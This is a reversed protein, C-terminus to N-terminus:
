KERVKKGSMHDITLELILARHANKAMDAEIDYGAPFLKAGLTRLLANKRQEDKVESIRGFCVVSTFCNWWEGPNRVPESLVTFCVKDNARVADLKHGEMACHFYLKGDALFYNMPIGYPYGNEGHVSLIGRPASELIALCEEESAAQKFRRLPRFEMIRIYVNERVGAFLASGTPM